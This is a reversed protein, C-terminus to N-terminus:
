LYMSCGSDKTADRVAEKGADTANNNSLFVMAGPALSGKALAASLSSMGLDGIQNSGLGLLKLNAMSGKALAESLSSMGLDGIQNDFLNLEKLNAMSGKALAESLSSMGLDGILTGSLNLMKLNALAGSAVAHVFSNFQEPTMRPAAYTIRTRIEHIPILFPAQTLARWSAKMQEFRERDYSSRGLRNTRLVADATDPDRVFTNIQRNLEPPLDPFVGRLRLLDHLKSHAKWM